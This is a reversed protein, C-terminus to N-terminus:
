AGEGGKTLDIRPDVTKYLIDVILNMMILLAALFITTGMIIPYDRNLISQSRFLM